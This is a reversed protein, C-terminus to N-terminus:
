VTAELKRAPPQEQIVEKLLVMLWIKVLTYGDYAVNMISAMSEVIM